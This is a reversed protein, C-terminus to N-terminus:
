APQEERQVGDSELRPDYDHGSHPNRVCLHEPLSCVRCVPGSTARQPPSATPTAAKWWPGAELARAPTETAADCAVWALVVAADRYPRDTMHIELWTTLSAVPWDPRLQNVAAALRARELANM